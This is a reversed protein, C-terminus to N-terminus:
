VILIRITMRMMKMDTTVRIRNKDINTYSLPYTLAQLDGNSIVHCDHQYIYNNLIYNILNTQNMVLLQM